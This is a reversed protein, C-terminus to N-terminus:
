LGNDIVVRAGTMVTNEDSVLWVVMQALGQASVLEGLASHAKYDQLHYRPIRTSMGVDLLGPVLCNVKIQYRGVEKALAHSFAQIAAKSAVYHVPAGVNREAAFAGVNLIHGGRAKIMPKLAARCFLYAGKVNTEMVLDWDKEELLAIPLVQMMSANNILVDLGGWRAIVDKVTQDVHASDRVDGKYSIAEAGQEQLLRLTEQADDDRQHYTIAVKAGAHGLALAIERGLNRTGGTVLCRKGELPRKAADESTPTPSTDM